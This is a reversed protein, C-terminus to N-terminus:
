RIEELHAAPWWRARDLDAALTVCGKDPDTERILRDKIRENRTRSAWEYIRDLQMHSPTKRLLETLTSRASSTLSSLAHGESLQMSAEALGIHHGGLVRDNVTTDAWAIVSRKGQGARKALSEAKGSFERALAFPEKVQTFVMGIGLSAAKATQRIASAQQAPVGALAREVEDQFGREFAEGLAVAWIWAFRGAVSALVDDGGVYHIVDPYYQPKTMHRETKQRAEVCAKRTADDLAKSLRTHVAADGVDAVAKFFDGIRNGDAAVLAIHNDADRRGMVHLRPDREGKEPRPEVHALHDFQTAETAGNGDPGAAAYAARLRKLEEEHFGRRIECDEGYSHSKGDPLLRKVTASEEHCGECEVLMPLRRSAPALHYTRGGRQGGDTDRYAQIYSPAAAVWATWEIGPLEVGLVKMANLVQSDDLDEDSELVVVGAIEPVAESLRLPSAFRGHLYQSSTRQTLALSAGRTLALRPSRTIWQQIRVAGIVLYTTMM